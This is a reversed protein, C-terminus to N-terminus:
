VNSTRHVFLFPDSTVFADSRVHLAAIYVGQPPTTQTNGDSDDVRILLHQHLTGTDVGDFPDIDSSSQQILGGPVLADSGDATYVTFGDDFINWTIGAPPVVAQVDDLHLGDGDFDIGDWFLLNSVVTDV